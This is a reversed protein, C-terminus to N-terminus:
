SQENLIQRIEPPPSVFVPGFEDPGIAAIREASVLSACLQEFLEPRERATESLRQPSLGAITESIMLVAVQDASLGEAKMGDAYNAIVPEFFAQVPKFRKSDRELGLIFAVASWIQIREFM